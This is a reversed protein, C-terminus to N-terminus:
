SVIMQTFHSLSLKSRCVSDLGTNSLGSIRAFIKNSTMDALNGINYSFRKKSIIFLFENM